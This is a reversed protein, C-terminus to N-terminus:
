RPSHRGARRSRSTASRTSPSGCSTRSAQPRAGAATGCRRAPSSRGASRSPGSRTSRSASGARSGTWSTRPPSGRTSTGRFGTSPPSSRRSPPTSPASSASPSTRRRTSARSGSRSRSPAPWTPSSAACTLGWRETPSVYRTSTPSCWPTGNSSSASCRSAASAPSRTPPSCSSTTSTSPARAPEAARRVGRRGAGAARVALRGARTRRHAPRLLPEAGAARGAAAGRDVRSWPRDAQGRGDRGPLVAGRGAAPRRHDAAARHLRVVAALMEPSPVLDEFRLRAREDVAASPVVLVRVNGADEVTAAPVCRVRAIGPAARRALQEYDEVTVARDRTRLALPGRVKAQEITEASVGGTAARRNEVRSVLPITTRLVSVAKAAVNGRPGGGTRYRPVRIPAGKPPVAGYITFTGDSERVAPGFQVDGNSRDVRFVQDQDDCGAFTDVETWTEWGSGGAVEVVLEPGGAVVPGHELPFTQGAVGESLGLIEDLVTEAHVGPVTGGVTFASASRITPSASYFPYGEVAEVVRCRLWGARLRNVVSAQHTAPVHLVVDGARNLGGTQDYEVECPSWGTGDWAEWVLPPQKPDVGVGQVDCEFRLAVACSPRRRRRARRADHRRAAAAGRLLPVGRGVAAGRTRLLPDAGDAQQTMVHALSRPPVVLERTTAFVVAEDHETRQTSAETGEPVAVPEEQPASLWFTLDAVAPTAPHLTVGLLDLFTVYLRDPVRNLRYLLEDVMFAFTEILTVGPDSVNHDTWEPCRQQVMRKADDVLDQFRRDDLQPAPLTM